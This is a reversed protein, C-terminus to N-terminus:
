STGRKVLHRISPKIRWSANLERRIAWTAFFGVIAGSLLGIWHGGLSIWFIGMIVGWCVVERNTFWRLPFISKKM